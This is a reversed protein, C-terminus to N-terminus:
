KSSGEVLRELTRFEDHAYGDTVDVKYNKGDVKIHGFGMNTWAARVGKFMSVLARGLRRFAMTMGHQIDYEHLEKRRQEEQKRLELRKLEPVYESPISFRSQLSVGDLSTTFTKPSLLPMMRKVTIELQLPAMGAAAAAAAAATAAPAASVATNSTSTGVSVPPLLRITNVINHTKFVTILAMACLFLYATGYVVSVWQPIGEPQKIVFPGSLFAWALIVLGSSWCGFYFWFHSPAEYLVTPTQKTALRKIFAYRSVQAAAAATAPKKSSSLYRQSVTRLNISATVNSPAVPPTKLRALSSTFFRIPGVSRPALHRCPLLSFGRAFSAM